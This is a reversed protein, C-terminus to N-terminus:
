ILRERVRPILFDLAKSNSEIGQSRAYSKTIGAMQDAAQKETMGSRVRERRVLNISDDRLNLRTAQVGKWFDLLQRRAANKNGARMSLWQNTCYNWLAQSSNLLDDFTEIGFDKLSERRLQVEVRWVQVGKSVGWLEYLWEKGSRCLELTKDYIRAQIKGKGITFGSIRQGDSHTVKSKARTIFKKVDAPQFQKAWAFDAFLDVRSVQEREPMDDYIGYVVRLIQEYAEELGASWIFESKVQIYVSPSLLSSASNDLSISLFDNSLVLRYPGRPVRKVNFKM